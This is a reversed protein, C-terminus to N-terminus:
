TCIIEADEEELLIEAEVLSMKNSIAYIIIADRKLKSYLEKMRSIKLLQQTEDLDLGLGFALQIVKNRSPKRKGSLLHYFYVRNLSSKEIVDKNDLDKEVIIDMLITHFPKHIFEKDNDSIYGKIDTTQIIANTLEGTSKAKKM